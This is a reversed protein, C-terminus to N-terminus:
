IDETLWPNDSGRYLKSMLESAGLAVDENQRLLVPQKRILREMRRRASAKTILLFMAHARASALKRCSMELYIGEPGCPQLGEGDTRWRDVDSSSAEMVVYRCRQWYEGPVNVSITANFFQRMFGFLHLTRSTRRGYPIRMPGRLRLEESYLIVPCGDDNEIPLENGDLLRVRVSAEAFPLFCSLKLRRDAATKQVDANLSGFLWYRKPQRM